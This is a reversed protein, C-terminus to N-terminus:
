KYNQLLFYRRPAPAAFLQLKAASQLIASLVPAALLWMVEAFCSIKCMAFGAGITGANINLM